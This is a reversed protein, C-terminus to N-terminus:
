SEGDHDTEFGRHHEDVDLGLFIMADDPDSTLLVLSSDHNTPEIEALRLWLGGPNITLGFPKVISGVIKTVDGFDQDWERWKMEEYTSCTEIDIQVFEDEKGGKHLDKSCVGYYHVDDRTSGRHYKAGLAAAVDSPTVPDGPPFVALIDLDGHTTKDPQKRPCAVGPLITLLKEVAADVCKLYVETSMRPFTIEKERKFAHGGM